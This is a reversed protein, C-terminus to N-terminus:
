IKLRNWIILDLIVWKSVPVFLNVGTLEGKMLATWRLLPFLTFAHCDLILFGLNKQSAILKTFNRPLERNNDPFYSKLCRVCVSISTKSEKPSIYEKKVKSIRSVRSKKFKLKTKLIKILINWITIAYIVRIDSRGM